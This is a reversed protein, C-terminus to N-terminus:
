ALVPCVKVEVTVPSTRLLPTIQVTDPAPQAPFEHPVSEGVELAEPSVMVYVAGLVTAVASVTVMVAVEAASPVLDDAAVMVTSGDGTTVTEGAATVTLVPPAGCTNVAV